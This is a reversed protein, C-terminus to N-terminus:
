PDGTLNAFPLVAVSANSAPAQGAGSADSHVFRRSGAVLRVPAVFRYGKGPATVIFRHEAPTEGLVRRLASISQNLSNEEVIVNPWVAGMLAAKSVLEGPREVFYLLTDFVRPPLSVPEKSGKEFLLRHVPDIRFRDFEYILPERSGVM